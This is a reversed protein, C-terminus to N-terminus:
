SRKERLERVVRRVQAITNKLPTADSTQFKGNLPLIGAMRGGVRLKYHRRGKELLWPFGCSDLESRLEEPLRM